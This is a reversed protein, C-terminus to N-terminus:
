LEYCFGLTVLTICNLSTSTFPRKHQVTFSQDKAVLQARQEPLIVSYGEGGDNQGRAAPSGELDQGEGVSGVFPACTCPSAWFM